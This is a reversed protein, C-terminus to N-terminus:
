RRHTLRLQQLLVRLLPQAAVRRVRLRHLLVREKLRDVPVLQIALLQGHGIYSISFLLSLFSGSTLPFCSVDINEDSNVLWGTLLWGEYVNEAISSGDYM